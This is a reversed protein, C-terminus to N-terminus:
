QLRCSETKDFIEMCNNVLSVGPLGKEETALRTELESEGVGRVLCYSNPEM